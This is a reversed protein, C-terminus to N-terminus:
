KKKIDERSNMWQPTLELLTQYSIVGALLYPQSLFWFCLAVLLCSHSLNRKSFLTLSEEPPMTKVSFPYYGLCEAKLVMLCEQILITLAFVPPKLGPAWPVFNWELVKTSDLRESSQPATIQWDM